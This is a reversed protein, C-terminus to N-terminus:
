ADTNVQRTWEGGCLQAISPSQQRYRRGRKAARASESAIQSVAEGRVASLVRPGGCGVVRTHRAPLLSIVLQMVQAARWRYRRRRLLVGRPADSATDGAGCVDLVSPRLPLALAACGCSLRMCM